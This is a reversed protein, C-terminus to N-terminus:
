REGLTHGFFWALAIGAKTLAVQGKLRLLPSSRSDVSKQWDLTQPTFALSNIAVYDQAALADIVSRHLGLFVVPEQWWGSIIRGHIREEVGKTSTFTLSTTSSVAEAWGFPEGTAKLLPIGNSADFDLLEENALDLRNALAIAMHGRWFARLVYLYYYSRKLYRILRLDINEPGDSPPDVIIMRSERGDTHVDLITGVLLTQITSGSHAAIKRKKDHIDHIHSKTSADEFTGKSELELIRDPLAGIMARRFDFTRQGKAKPGGRAEPIRTLDAATVDFVHEALLVSASEGLREVIDDNPKRKGALLDEVGLYGDWQPNGRLAWRSLENASASEGEACADKMAMGLHLEEPTFDLGKRVITDIAEREHPKLAPNTTLKAWEDPPCEVSIRTM